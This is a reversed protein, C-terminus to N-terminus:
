LQRANKVDGFFMREAAALGDAPTTAAALEPSAALGGRGGIWDPRTPATDTDDGDISDAAPPEYGLYARVLMHVPPREAWEADLADLM